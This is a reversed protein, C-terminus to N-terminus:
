EKVIKSIKVVGTLSKIRKLETKRKTNVQKNIRKRYEKELKTEEIEILPATVKYLFNTILEKGSYAELEKTQTIITNSIIDKNPDQCSKGSGNDRHGRKFMKHKVPYCTIILNIQNFFKEGMPLMNGKLARPSYNEEFWYNLLKPGRTLQLAKSVQKWEGEFSNSKARKRITEYLEEGGPIRFLSRNSKLLYYILCLFEYGKRNGINKVKISIQPYRSQIETLFEQKSEWFQINNKRYKYLSRPLYFQKKPLQKGKEEQNPNKVGILLSPLSQDFDNDYTFQKNTIDLSYGDLTISDEDFNEIDELTLERKFKQIVKM